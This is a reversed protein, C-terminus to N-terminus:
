SYFGLMDKGNRRMNSFSFFLTIGKVSAAPHSLFTKYCGLKQLLLCVAFLDAGKSIALNNICLDNKVTFCCKVSTLKIFIHSYLIIRIPMAYSKLPARLSHACQASSMCHLKCFVIVSIKNQQQNSVYLFTPLPFCILVM